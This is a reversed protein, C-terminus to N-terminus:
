LVEERRQLCPELGHLLALSLPPGWPFDQPSVCLVACAACPLFCSFLLPTLESTLGEQWPAQTLTPADGTLWGAGLGTGGLPSRSVM